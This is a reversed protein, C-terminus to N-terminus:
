TYLDLFRGLLRDAEPSPRLSREFADVEGSGDDLYFRRYMRLRQRMDEDSMESHFQSGYAPKGQLRVLQHRCRGTSALVEIGPPPEEVRDKHGLQVTFRPPFGDLLPDRRGAETVEIEFTGVEKAAEDTVVTGGLVQAMLQHGWCSGFFPREEDFLRALVEMLPATFPYERTVTHSGAGGVMVVDAGAVHHWRLQPEAVLNIARVQHRELRCRALFCGLEQEAAAPLDRVQLLVMRLHQRSKSM